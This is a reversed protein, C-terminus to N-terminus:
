KTEHRQIPLEPHIIAAIKRSPRNCPAISLFVEKQKQTQVPKLWQSQYLNTDLNL